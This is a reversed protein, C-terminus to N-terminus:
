ERDVEIAGDFKSHYKEVEGAGYEARSKSFVEEIRALDTSPKAKGTLPRGPLCDIM